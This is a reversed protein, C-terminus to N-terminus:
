VTVCARVEDATSTHRILTLEVDPNVPKPTTHAETTEMDTQVETSTPSHATEEETQVSADSNWHVTIMRLESKRSLTGRLIIMGLLVAALLVALKWKFEM